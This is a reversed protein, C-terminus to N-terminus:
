KMLVMKKIFVFSGSQLKYFYIGSTLESGEFEVEYEGVTKYENVLTAVKNGLLDYVKLSTFGSQPITFKIKTSPNFPNPYADFLKFTYVIVEAEYTETTTSTIYDGSSDEYDTGVNNDQIVKIRGSNTEINPVTWDYTLQTEPLNLAITEWTLGGNSSFYLDWNAPGHYQALQWQIQVVEDM